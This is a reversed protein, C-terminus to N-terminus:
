GLSQAARWLVQESWPHRWARGTLRQLEVLARVPKGMGLWREATEVRRADKKLLNTKGAKM